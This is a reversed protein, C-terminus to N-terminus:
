GASIFMHALGSTKYQELCCWLYLDLVEWNLNLTLFLLLSPVFYLVRCGKALDQSAGDSVQLELRMHLASPSDTGM